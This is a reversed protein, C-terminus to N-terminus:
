EQGRLDTFAADEMIEVMEGVNMPTGTQRQAAIRVDLEDVRHAPGYSGNGDAAWWGKAPSNNWSVIWGKSPNVAQPHRSFPMFDQWEIFGDPPNGQLVPVVRDPYPVAGGHQDFFNAPLNRDSLWEFRGDGWVPLDPAHSPDRIPFLGSHLYA